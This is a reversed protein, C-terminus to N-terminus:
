LTTIIETNMKYDIICGNKFKDEKSLGTLKSISQQCSLLQNDALTSQFQEVVAQSFSKRPILFRAMLTFVSTFNLDMIKMRIGSLSTQGALSYVGTGCRIRTRRASPKTLQFSVAWEHKLAATTM